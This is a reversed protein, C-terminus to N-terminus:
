LQINWQNELSIERTSHVEGVQRAPLQHKEFLDLVKQANNTTVEVIFGGPEAFLFSGVPEEGSSLRVGLASSEAMEHITKFLGGESIDHASEVWGEDIARSTLEIIAAAQKLKPWPASKGADGNWEAWASGGLNNSGPGLRLLLNGSQKLRPTLVCRYDSLTGLCGIVPSPPISSGNGSENYLSVNGSIVPLPFPGQGTAPHTIQLAESAARIGLTGAVFDGMQDPKEPNGYCLCDTLCQPKAGVAVINRVAELVNTAAGWWPDIRNLRHNHDLTLAVGTSRIEEPWNEDDFPAIVGAGAEGAELIVRGQVQKDYSAFVSSRSKMAMSQLFSQIASPWSQPESILPGAIEAAPPREIYERNYLLGATVDRAKADVLLAEGAFVRFQGDPRIKGITAARAGRSVAPLAYTQNYHDLIRQELQPPVVWMFREQTESCLVVEPALNPMGRPVEDLYIEAGLDAADALEVSACAIGGAGLDKFGIQDILGDRLLERFLAETSKLLHRELFANPEQVAGKNRELDDEELQTSAFSAGGFGSNDTPKGVLIFVYDDANEPAHSHILRDEALIGATFVTVLCNDNYGKDYNVFGGLNPIGLPNGYGAIGAVVGQAIRRTEQRAPDGFCLGDLVAVVESGMCLVDRVNGGVGTAAGEYPVVQSPHNHSEHSLAVGYRKGTKDRAVEIIGADEKPGLIVNPGDTILNKLFPRSSKYSCHESGQISWLVCEALTPPRGLIQTEIKRAEETTLTLRHSKLLSIVEEDTLNIFSLTPLSSSM